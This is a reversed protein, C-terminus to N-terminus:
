RLFNGTSRELHKRDDGLARNKGGSLGKGSAFSLLYGIVLGLFIFLLGSGALMYVTKTYEDDAIEIGFPWISKLSKAEGGRSVGIGTAGSPLFVQNTEVLVSEENLDPVGKAVLKRVREDSLSFKGTRSLYRLVVSASSRSTKDGSDRSGLNSRVVVKAETVGPLAVLLREVELGLAHDLRLSSIKAPNPILGAPKTISDFSDKRDRPLGLEHLAKLAQVHQGQTVQIKYSSNAGSTKVREVEVGIEGLRVLVEISERSSLGSLLETNQKCGSIALLMLFLLLYAKM